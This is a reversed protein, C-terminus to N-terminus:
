CGSGLEYSEVALVLQVIAAILTDRTSQYRSEEHEFRLFRTAEDRFSSVNGSGFADAGKKRRADLVEDLIGGVREDFESTGKDAETGATIEDEGTKLEESM